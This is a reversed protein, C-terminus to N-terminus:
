HYMSKRDLEVGKFFSSVFQDGNFKFGIPRLVCKLKDKLNIDIHLQKAKPKGLFLFQDNTFILPIYHKENAKLAENIVCRDEGDKDNNTEIVHFQIDTYKLVYDQLEKKHHLRCKPLTVAINNCFKYLYDIFIKLGKISYEGESHAFAINSGDAIVYCSHRLVSLKLQLPGYVIKINGFLNSCTTGEYLNDIPETKSNNKYEKDPVEQNDEVAIVNSNDLAIQIDDNQPLSQTIDLGNQKPDM